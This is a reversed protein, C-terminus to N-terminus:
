ADGEEAAERPNLPTRVNGRGWQWVEWHESAFWTPFDCCHEADVLDAAMDAAFEEWVELVDEAFCMLYTDYAPSDGWDTFTRALEWASPVPAPTTSTANNEM